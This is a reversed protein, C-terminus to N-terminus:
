GRAWGAVVAAFYDEMAQLGTETLCVATGGPQEPDASLCLLEAGELRAIWRGVTALSLRADEALRVKGVPREELHAQFLALLLSWGPHVLTIGFLEARGQRAAVVSRLQGLTVREAPGVERRWAVAAAYAALRVSVRHAERSLEHLFGVDSESEAAMVM